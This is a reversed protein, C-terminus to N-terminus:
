DEEEKKVKGEKEAEREGIEVEEEDEGEEERVQRAAHLNRPSGPDPCQSSPRHDAPRSRCRRGGPGSPRRGGARWLRYSLGGM